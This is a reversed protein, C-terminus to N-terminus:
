IIYINQFNIAEFLIGRAKDSLMRSDSILIININSDNKYIYM